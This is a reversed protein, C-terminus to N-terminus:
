PVEAIGAVVFDGWLLRIEGGVEMVPLRQLTSQEYVAVRLHYEGAPLDDPLDICAPGAQAPLDAQALLESYGRTLYLGLTYDQQDTRPALVRDLCLSDGPTIEERLDLPGLYAFADGFMFALRSGMSAGSDFGYYIMGQVTDRYSIPRDYAAIADWAAPDSGPAILWVAPTNDFTAALARMEEPTRITWGFDINIGRLLDFRRAYYAAPSSHSINILAPQTNLRAISAQESATRWDPKDPWLSDNIGLHAIALLIVLGWAAVQRLPNAWPGRLADVGAALLIAWAPLILILYRLHLVPWGALRLGFLILVPLVLLLLMLLLGPRLARHRWSNVAGLALVLAFLGGAAATLVLWLAALTSLDAPLVGAGLSEAREFQQLASPLWPLILLAGPILALLWVPIRRPRTLLLHLGHVPLVLLGFYHTLGAIGILLGYALALRRGGHRWWRLYVLSSAATLALLPAYMRAERSYYLFYGMTGMILLVYFSARGSDPLATRALAATLALAIIGAFFSPLRLVFESDGMLLTWGDLLLYYLPPHVDDAQVRDLANRLSSVTTRLADRWDNAPGSGDYVVWASWGEDLWLSDQQISHISLAALLILILAGILPAHHKAPM